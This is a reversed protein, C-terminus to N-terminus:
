KDVNCSNNEDVLVEVLCIQGQLITDSKSNLNELLKNQKELEYALKYKTFVEAIRVSRECKEYSNVSIIGKLDSGGVCTHCLKNIPCNNCDIGEFNRIDKTWEKTVYKEYVYNNNPIEIYNNKCDLVNGIIYETRDKESIYRHCPMISGDPLISINNEGADCVSCNSGYSDLYICQIVASFKDKVYDECYKNESLIDFYAKIMCEIDEYSPVDETTDPTILAMSFRDAYGNEVYCQLMKFIEKTNIMNKNSLVCHLNIFINPHIEKLRKINNIVKDYTGNNNIDVRCKDHTEKTGDVSVCIKFHKSSLLEDLENFIDLYDDDLSFMNTGVEIDIPIEKMNEINEKVYDLLWYFAEKNLTPEGGFMQIGKPHGYKIVKSKYIIDMSKIFVDKSMLKSSIPKNEEFCYTCRLNCMETLFLTALQPSLIVNKSNKIENIMRRFKCEDISYKRRLSYLECTNCLGCDICKTGDYSKVEELERYLEKRNDLSKLNKTKWDGISYKNEFDNYMDSSVYCGYLKNDWGYTLKQNVCEKYKKQEKFDLLSNKVRSSYAISLIEKLKDDIFSINNEKYNYIPLLKIPIGIFENFSLIKPLDDINENNLAISITVNKNIKYM